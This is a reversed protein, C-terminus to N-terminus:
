RTPLKSEIRARVIEWDTGKSEAAIARRARREIESAWARDADEDPEGDISAILDAALNAREDLPLELARALLEHARSTM